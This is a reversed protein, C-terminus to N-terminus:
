QLFANNLIEAMTDTLFLMFFIGISSIVVHIGDVIKALILKAIYSKKKPYKKNKEGNEYIGIGSKSKVIWVHNGPYNAVVSFKVTYEREVYEGKTNKEIVLVTDSISRTATDARLVVAEQAKYYEDGLQGYIKSKLVREDAYVPMIFPFDIKKQIEPSLTIAAEYVEKSYNVKLEQETM